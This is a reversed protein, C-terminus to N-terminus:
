ENTIRGVEMFGYLAEEILDARKSRSDEALIAYREENSLEMWPSMVCAARELSDIQRLWFEASDAWEFGSVFKRMEALMGDLKEKEVAASMDDIDNRRSMSLRISEDYGIEINEVDVRYGTHVVVYGQHNIETIEGSIGIPYFSESTLDKYSENDKAVILVVREGVALAKDGANRRVQGTNFYINANPALIMNYVPVVIM